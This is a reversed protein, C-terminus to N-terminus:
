RSGCEGGPFAPWDLAACYELQEVGAPGALLDLWRAAVVQHAALDDALGAFVPGPLYDGVPPLAGTPQWREPAACRALAVSLALALVLGVLAGALGARWLCRRCLRLM